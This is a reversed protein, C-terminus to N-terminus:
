ARFEAAHDSTWELFTKPRAGTIEAVTSTVYAPQGIAAAWAQLLMNVAPLPGITLLECRAEEPSIEGIRLSRGIVWGRSLTRHQESFAM